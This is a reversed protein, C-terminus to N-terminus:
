GLIRRIAVLGLLIWPLWVGCFIFQETDTSRNETLRRREAEQQREIEDALRRLHAPTAEGLLTEREDHHEPCRHTPCSPRPHRM